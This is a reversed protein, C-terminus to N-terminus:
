RKASPAKLTYTKTATTTNGAEDVVKITVTLVVAKGQKLATRMARTLPLKVPESSGAAITLEQVPLTFTRKGIRVTQTVTAKSTTTPSTLAFLTQTSGRNVASRSLRVNRGSVIPVTASPTRHGPGAKPIFVQVPGLGFSPDQKVPAGGLTSQAADRTEQATPAPTSSTESTTVPPTTSPADTAPPQGGTQDGTPQTPPVVVTVTVPQAATAADLTATVDATGISPGATLTAAATGGATTATAPVTGLSTAFGITTAPFQTAVAGDGSGGTNVLSAALQSTGTGALIVTPDATLRLQLWSSADVTGTASNCSADAPGANCGWWNGTADVDDADTYGFVGGAVNGVIRSDVIRANTVANGVAVGNGEAEPLGSGTSGTITMGSLLVDDLTAPISAYSGDNRGKIAMATGATGKVSSDIFSVHAFPGYKVNIDVGAVPYPPPGSPRVESITGNADASIRTFTADSVAELYMGKTSNRDFTSDSVDIDDFVGPTRPTTARYQSYLGYDNADFHSDTIVLDTTDGNFRAGHNNATLTTDDITWGDASAALPVDIGYRANTITVGSFTVDDVGIANARVGAATGTVGGAVVKLDALTLGDADAGLLFAAANNAGTVQTADAGAGTITLSPTDIVVGGVYTGAHINIEDGAQAAAVAAAPTTFDCGSECVELTAASAAGAAGLLAAAAAALASGVRRVHGDKGRKSGHGDHRSRRGSRRVLKASGKGIDVEFM